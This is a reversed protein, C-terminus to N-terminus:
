EKWKSSFSPWLSASCCQWRPPCPLSSGMTRELPSGERPCESGMFAIEVSCEEQLCEYLLAQRRGMSLGYTGNCTHM